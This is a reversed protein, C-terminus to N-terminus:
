DIRAVAAHLRLLAEITAPDRRGFGCETSVGFGSVVQEAAAIRRGAGAFGDTLHILGLYLQTERHLTLDKLPSFYGVDDRGRPVPLHLWQIPRSVAAVIRNAIGTLIGTDNPEKWHRHNMDGYCLHYGLAVDAPVREGLRALRALLGADPDDGLFPVPFLREFISMETAVDWQVALEHRPIAACIEDLEALMRAEYLPEVAGQDDYAMYSYIPAFPTPLCLQFRCDAAFGGQAKISAFERWSAIAERAFGLTGLDLDGPGADSRFRFPPRLQYDRDRAANEELADQRAFVRHQWGIWNAREGTEGDPVRETLPGIIRAVATFVDSATALPISGVLHVARHPM